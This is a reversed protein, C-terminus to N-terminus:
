QYAMPSQSCFHFPLFEESWLEEERLIPMSTKQSKISNYSITKALSHEAQGRCYVRRPSQSQKEGLVSQEISRCHRGAGTAVETGALSPSAGKGASESAFPKGEESGAALRSGEVSQTGRGTGSLTSSKVSPSMMSSSSSERRSERASPDGYGKTLIPVAYTGQKKTWIHGQLLNM